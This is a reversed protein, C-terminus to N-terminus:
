GAKSGGTENPRGRQMLPTKFDGETFIKPRGLRLWVEKIHEELLKDPTHRLWTGAKKQKEIDIGHKRVYAELLLSTTKDRLNEPMSGIYSRLRKNEAIFHNRERRRKGSASLVSQPKKVPKANRVAHEDYRHREYQQDNELIKLLLSAPKRAKGSAMNEKTKDLAWRIRESPWNGFIERVKDDPFFNKLEQLIDPNISNEAPRDQLEGFKIRSKIDELVSEAAESFTKEPKKLTKSSSDTRRDIRGAVKENAKSTVLTQRSQGVSEKEMELELSGNGPEKEWNGKGKGKGKRIHTSVSHEDMAEDASDVVPHTSVSSESLVGHTDPLSNDAFSNDVRGNWAPPPPTKPKSKRNIVQHKKWRRIYFYEKEEVSYRVIMRKDEIERLMPVVDIDRTPFIAAKIIPPDNVFRGEDDAFCWLGAYFLVTVPEMERLKMDTFFEPKITRIRM